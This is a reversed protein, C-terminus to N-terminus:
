RDLAVTLSPQYRRGANGATGVIGSCAAARDRETAGEPLAVAAPADVEGRRWQTGPLAGEPLPGM